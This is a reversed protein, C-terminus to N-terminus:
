PLFILEIKSMYTPLKQPLFKLKIATKMEVSPSLLQSKGSCFM